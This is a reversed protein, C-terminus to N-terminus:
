RKPPDEWRLGRGRCLSALAAESGEALPVGNYYARGDRVTVYGLEVGGPFLTEDLKIGLRKKLDPTLQLAVENFSPGGFGALDAPAVKGGRADLGPQYAVGPDPVHTTLAACIEPRVVLTQAALPAADLALALALVILLLRM